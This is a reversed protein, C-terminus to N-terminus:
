RYQCVEAVWIGEVSCICSAAQLQSILSGYTLMEWYFLHISDLSATQPEM